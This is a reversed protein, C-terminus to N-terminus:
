DKRKGYIGSYHLLSLAIGGAGSAPSDSIPLIKHSDSDYIIFLVLQVAQGAPQLMLEGKQAIGFIYDVAVAARLLEQRCPAGAPAVQNQQVDIHLAHRPYLSGAPDPLPVRVAAQDKAGGAVGEGAFAILYPGM